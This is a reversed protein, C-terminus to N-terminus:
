QRLRHSEQNPIRSPGDPFPNPKRIRGRGSEPGSSMSLLVAMLAGPVIGFLGGILINASMMGATVAGAIAGILGGAIATAAREVAKSPGAAVPKRDALPGLPFPRAAPDAALMSLLIQDFWDPVTLNVLASPRAPVGPPFGTLSEYIARGAAHVDERADRTPPSIDRPASFPERGLMIGDRVPPLNWAPDTLKLAGDPALILRSLAVRGHVLGREHLAQLARCLQRFLPYIDDFSMLERRALRGAVTSALDAGHVWERFYYRVGAESGHTLVRALNPHEVGELQGLDRDVRERAAPDAKAYGPLFRVAVVAQDRLRFLTGGAASDLTYAEVEGPLWAADDARRGLVLARRCAPCPQPGPGEPPWAHGCYPCVPDPSSTM